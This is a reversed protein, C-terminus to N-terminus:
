KPSKDGAVPVTTAFSTTFIWTPDFREQMTDVLFSMRRARKEKYLTGNVEITFEQDLDVIDDNLMMLFDSVGRSDVKIRNAERDVKIALRPRQEFPVGAVPETKGLSVWFSDNFAEHNPEITLELPTLPRRCEAFWAEIEPQSESFPYAGKGEIVKCHNQGLEAFAKVLADCADKTEPSSILLVPVTAISALRLETTVDVPHRLVLGAFRHPFYTALRLAFGSAGRGTDLILRERDVNFQQQFLGASALVTMLRATEADEAGDKSFDPVPDFDMGADLEPLLVLSSDVLGGGGWTADYHAKPATWEGRAADYGSMVLATPYPTKEDYKRPVMMWYVPDSSSGKVQKLVGSSSERGYPFAGEFVARLDAVSALPDAKRSKADWEKQFSERASEMKSNASRKAKPSTAEHRFSVWAEFWDRVKKNLSKCDSASLIKPEDSAAQAAAAPALLGVSLTLASALSANRFDLIM